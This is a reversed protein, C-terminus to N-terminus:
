HCGKWAFGQEDCSIVYLHQDFMAFLARNGWYEIWTWVLRRCNFWNIWAFMHSFCCSRSVPSCCSLQSFSVASQPTPPFFYLSPPFLSAFPSYIGKIYFPLHCFIIESIELCFLATSPATNITFYFSSRQRYFNTRVIVADCNLEFKLQSLGEPYIPEQDALASYM